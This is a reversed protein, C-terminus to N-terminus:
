PLRSLDSYKIEAWDFKISVNFTNVISSDTSSLTVDGISEILCNRFYETFLLNGKNNFVSIYFDFERPAYTANTVSKSKLMDDHFLKYIKFDEDILVEFSLDSFTHTSSAIWSNLGQTSTKAIDFSIGPM